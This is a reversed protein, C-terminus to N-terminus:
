AQQPPEAATMARRYAPRSGIREVWAQVAPYGDLSAGSFHRMTTLPFSMMIDATTLDAGGFYPHTALHAEALAIANVLRATVFQPRPEVGAAKVALAAIEMAMFSGNAYHLWFLHTAFDPSDVAPVLRGNGHRAAIYDCIAGSEALALAGDTIVPATQAPHLAKYEDPAALDARREYRILAYDIGLEECLWVIRESQSIGLHHITLM